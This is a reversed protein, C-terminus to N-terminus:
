SCVSQSFDCFLEALLGSFFELVVFLLHANRSPDQRVPRESFCSKNRQRVALALELDVRLFVLKRIAVELQVLKEIDAVDDTDFTRQKARTCAFERHESVFQSEQRFAKQRQGLFPM